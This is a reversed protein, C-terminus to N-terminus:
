SDRAHEAGSLSNRLRRQSQVLLGTVLVLLLALFSPQGTGLVCLALVLGQTLRIHTAHPYFAYKALIGLALIGLWYLGVALALRVSGLGALLPATTLAAYGLGLALRRRLFPGPQRLMLALMTPPEPTGYYSLAALLWGLAALGAGLPAVRPWWALALLVLWLGAGFSRAGSVWEFAEARLPSRWRRQGSRTPRAAPLVAVAAALLPTTAAAGYAGLALLGLALPLSYLAYEAALGMRFDPLTATLFQWDSRRRHVPLLTAVLLLPLTWYGWAHQGLVSVVQLLALLLLPVALVLRVAGVERGLRWLLLGRLQLYTALQM